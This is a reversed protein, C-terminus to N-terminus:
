VTNSEHEDKPEGPLFPTDPYESYIDLCIRHSCQSYMKERLCHSRLLQYVPPQEHEVQLSSYGGHRFIWCIIGDASENAPRRLQTRHTQPNRSPRRFPTTVARDHRILLCVSSSQDSQYWFSVRAEIGQQRAWLQHAQVLRINDTMLNEATKRESDLQDDILTLLGGPSPILRMFM